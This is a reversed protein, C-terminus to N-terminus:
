NDNEANKNDLGMVGELVMSVIAMVIGGLIATWIGGDIILRDGVLSETVLLLVGNIVLVFLGLTVVVAPCTLFMLIPKLLSNVIGFVLGIILLTGMDNNVVQIGPILMATMAISIANIVVRIFFERM